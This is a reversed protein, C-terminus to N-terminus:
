VNVQSIYKYPICMNRLYVYKELKFYFPVDVRLLEPYTKFFFM